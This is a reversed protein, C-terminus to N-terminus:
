TSIYKRIERIKEELEWKEEYLVRLLSNLRKVEKINHKNRACLLRQRNKEIVDTQLAISKEYEIYLQEM